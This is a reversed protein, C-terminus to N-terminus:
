KEMGCEGCDMIPANTKLVELVTRVVAVVMAVAVAGAVMVNVDVVKVKMKSTRTALIKLKTVM